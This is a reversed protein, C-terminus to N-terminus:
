FDLTDRTGIVVDVSYQGSPPTTAVWGPHLALSERVTYAGPVLGLFEYAGNADTTDVGSILGTLKIVWNSLTPESSDKVGNGNLDNFKSGRIVGQPYNGFVKATASSGGTVTVSYTGPFAPFTRIWGPRSEESVTYTGDPLGGFAFNGDQDSYASDVILGTIKIKWGSLGYDTALDRFGNGNVDYFKMGSISGTQFEANMSSHALPSSFLPISALFLLSLFYCPSSILRPPM